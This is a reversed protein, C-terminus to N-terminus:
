VEIFVLMYAPKKPPYILQLRLENPDNLPAEPMAQVATRSLTLFHKLLPMQHHCHILSLRM